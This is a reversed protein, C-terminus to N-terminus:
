QEADGAELTAEILERAYEEVVTPVPHPYGRRVLDGIFTGLPEAVEYAWVDDWRDAYEDWLRHLITAADKLFDTDSISVRSLASRPDDDHRRAIAYGATLMALDTPDYNM